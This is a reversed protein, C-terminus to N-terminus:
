AAVAEREEDAREFPEPQWAYVAAAAGVGPRYGCIHVLGAAHLEAVWKRVTQDQKLGQIECIERVTRPQKRILMVLDCLRAVINPSSM